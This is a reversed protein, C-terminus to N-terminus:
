RHFVESSGNTYVIGLQDALFGAPFVYVLQQDAYNSRAQGEVINVRTAYVWSNPDVTRPTVDTLIVGKPKGYGLIRLQGYEDSYTVSGEPQVKALWQASAVEPSTVYFRTYHEGGNFLNAPSTDGLVAKQLGASFSVLLLVLAAVGVVVLRGIPERARRGRPGLLRGGLDAALQGLASLGWLVPVAVIPLLQIYLRDQGYSEALTSSLRVLGLLLISPLALIAFELPAGRRRRLLLLALTGGVAALILAQAFVLAALNFLSGLRSPGTTDQPAVPQLDWQPSTAAEVPIVWPKDRSYQAAIGTQYQAVTIAVAPKPGRLYAQLPSEGDASPLIQFGSDVLNNMTAVTHNTSKTVGQYWGFGLVVAAGLVVLKRPDLRPVGHFRGLTLQVIVAGVLVTVLTYTTSYHSVVVGATLVLLLILRSRGRLTDDLMAALLSVFLLLAIEQRALAPMESVFPLQTLLLAAGLFALLRSLAARFLSFAVVPMLGFLLPFVLKLLVLVPLGALSHLVAPLITLSLMAGYADGPHAPTWSGDTITQQALNYETSIDWGFVYQSRLAFGLLLASTASFLLWGLRQDSWRQARIAGLALVAVAAAAALLSIASGRGNNLRLTGVAAIVPVVLSWVAARDVQRSAARLDSWPAGAGPTMALGLCVLNVAVALAATTLPRTVGVHPGVVNVALGIAMLLVLSTSVLWGPSRLMDTGSLRLSRLALFGPLLLLVTLAVLQAVWLGSVLTAADLLVLILGTELLCRGPRLAPASPPTDSNPISLDETIIM